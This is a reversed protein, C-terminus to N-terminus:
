PTGREILCRQCFGVPTPERAPRWKEAQWLISLVSRDGIRTNPMKDGGRGAMYSCDPLHLLHGYMSHQNIVLNPEDTVGLRLQWGEPNWNDSQETM